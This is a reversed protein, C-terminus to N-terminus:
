IEFRQFMAAMVLAIIFYALLMGGFFVAPKMKAKMEAIQAETYGQATIWVSRCLASYWVGGLVFTAVAAAIIALYNLQDFHIQPMAIEQLQIPSAFRVLWCSEAVGGGSHGSVGPFSARYVRAGARHMGVRWPM